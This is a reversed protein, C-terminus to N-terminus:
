PCGRGYACVGSLTLSKASVQRSLTWTRVIHIRRQTRLSAVWAWWQARRPIRTLSRRAIGRRLRRLEGDTRRRDRRVGERCGMETWRRYGARERRWVCREPRGGERWWSWRCWLCGRAPEHRWGSGSRCPGRHSPRWIHKGLVSSPWLLRARARSAAGMGSGRHSVRVSGSRNKDSLRLNRPRSQDSAGTARSSESFPDRPRARLEGAGRRRSGDRFTQYGM